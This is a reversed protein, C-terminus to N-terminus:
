TTAGPFSTTTSEKLYTGNFTVQWTGKNGGLALRYNSIVDIGSVVAGAINQNTGIVYGGGAV